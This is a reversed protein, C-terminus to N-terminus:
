RTLVFRPIEGSRSDVTDSAHDCRLQCIARWAVGRKQRRESGMVYRCDIWCRAKVDFRIHTSKAFKRLIQFRSHSRTWEIDFVDLGVSVIHLDIDTEWSDATGDEEVHVRIRQAVRPGPFVPRRLPTRRELRASVETEIPMRRAVNVDSTGASCSAFATHHSRRIGGRELPAPHSLGMTTRM